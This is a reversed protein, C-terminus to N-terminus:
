EMSQYPYDDRVNTIDALTDIENNEPVPPLDDISPDKGDLVRCPRSGEQIFGPAIATVRFSNTWRYGILM